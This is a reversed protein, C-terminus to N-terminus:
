WSIVSRLPVAAPFAISAWDQIFFFGNMLMHSLPALETALEARPLIAASAFRWDVAAIVFAVLSMSPAQGPKTVAAVGFRLFVRKGPTQLTGTALSRPPDDHALSMVPLVNLILALAIRAHDRAAASAIL